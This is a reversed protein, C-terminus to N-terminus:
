GVSAVKSKGEKEKTMVELNVGTLKVFVDELSPKLTNISVIKFGNERAFDIILPTVESVNEVILRFKDGVELVAVVGNLKELKNKLNETFGFSVEIVPQQELNAKLKEPNDIAVIKGQNIIAIRQCFKDAEEIYHTTLFVTAGDKNLENVLSRIVRASQVDLGTTPEDLFLIAPNHIVAMAITVRRKMGRSFTGARDNRREYLGFRELLDKARVARQAKPVGYLEVSFILNDWASMEDYINSVEPVVGIQGKAMVLQRSIDFGEILANGSTPKTLGTLMRITTTKGAGNPGLFGFLEGKKVSFTLGNVATIDGFRKVLNSAEIANELTM